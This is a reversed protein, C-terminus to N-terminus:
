ATRRLPRGEWPVPGGTYDGRRAVAAARICRSCRGCKASCPVGAATSVDMEARDATTAASSASRVAVYAHHWERAMRHEAQHEGIDLGVAHGDRYGSAYAEALDRHHQDLDDLLARLEVTPDATM